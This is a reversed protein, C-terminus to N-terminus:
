VDYDDPNDPFLVPEWFKCRYFNSNITIRYPQDIIMQKWAIQTKNDGFRQNTSRFEPWELGDLHAGPKGHRAFNVWIQRHPWVM